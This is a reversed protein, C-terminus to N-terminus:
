QVPVSEWKSSSPVLVVDGKTLGQTLEDFSSRSISNKGDSFSWATDDNGGKSSGSRSARAVLRYANGKYTYFDNHMGGRASYAAYFSSTSKYFNYGDDGYFGTDLLSRAAGGEYTYIFLQWGSGGKSKIAILAEDTADGYVDAYYYCVRDRYKGDQNKALSGVIREYEAHAASNAKASSSDSKAQTPRPVDAFAQTPLAGAGMAGVFAVAVALVLLKRVKSHM